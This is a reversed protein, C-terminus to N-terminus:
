ELTRFSSIAWVVLLYVISRHLCTSPCLTAKTCWSSRSTASNSASKILISLVPSIESVRQVKSDDYENWYMKCQENILVRYHGGHATGVHSIVSHIVYKKNNVNILPDIKVAFNNKTTLNENTFRNITVFLIPKSVTLLFRKEDKFYIYLNNFRLQNLKANTSVGPRDAITTPVLYNDVTKQVSASASEEVTYGVFKLYIITRLSTLLFKGIEVEMRADSIQTGNRFVASSYEIGILSM